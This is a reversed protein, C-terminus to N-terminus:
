YKLLNRLVEFISFLSFQQAARQTQNVKKYANKGNFNAFVESM